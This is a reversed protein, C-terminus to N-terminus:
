YGGPALHRRNKLSANDAHGLYGKFIGLPFNIWTNLLTCMHFVHIIPLIIFSELYINLRM